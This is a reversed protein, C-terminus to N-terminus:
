GGQAAFLQECQFVPLDWLLEGNYRLVGKKGIKSLLESFRTALHGVQFV